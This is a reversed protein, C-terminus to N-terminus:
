KNEQEGKRSAAEKEKMKFGGGLALYLDIRNQLRQNRVRILDSRSQFPRRQSDLLTVIDILGKTYEDLAITKAEESESAATVLAAEQNKLKDESNLATEVELFTQLAIQAYEAVAENRRAEALAVKAKLEGAKFIPQTLNAALNWVLFKSNLLQSFTDTSTGGNGTLRFSPLRNRKESKLLRDASALRREAAIIDPRRALLESPLGIPVEQKMAPFDEAIKISSAPYRGLLVEFVRVTGDLENKRAERQNEANAVDARGLRVDLASSLGRRFRDEIIGQSKKFVDVTKKALEVQQLASITDFWNKAILATLSFRAAQLDAEAAEFDANAARTQNRLRGWVDLEWQTRALLNFDTSRITRRVNGSNFVRQSRSASLNGELNPFLSARSIRVQAAAAELRAVVTKLDFNKAIAEGVLSPLIPDSLDALWPQISAAEHSHSSTWGDPINLQQQLDVKDPATRCGSLVAAIALGILVFYCNRNM